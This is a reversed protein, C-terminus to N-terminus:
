RVPRYGPQKRFAYIDDISFGHRTWNNVTANSVALRAEAATRPARTSGLNAQNVNSSVRDPYVQPYGGMISHDVMAQQQAESLGKFQEAIKLAQARCAIAKKISARHDVWEGWAKPSLWDPLVEATADYPTLKTKDKVKDKIQGKIQGKVQSLNTQPSLPSPAASATQGREQDNISEKFSEHALNPVLPTGSKPSIFDRKQSVTDDTFQAPRPGTEPVVATAQRETRKDALWREFALLTYRNSRGFGGREVSIAGHEELEKLARMVTKRDLGTAEALTEISPNCQGTRANHFDCLVRHVYRASSSLRGTYKRVWAIAIHSM